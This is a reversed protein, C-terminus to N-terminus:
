RRRSSLSSSSGSLTPFNVQRATKLTLQICASASYVAGPMFNISLRAGTQRLDSSQRSRSRRCVAGRILPM